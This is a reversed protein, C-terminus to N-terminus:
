VKCHMLIVPCHRKVHAECGTGSIELPTLSESDTEASKKRGPAQKWKHTHTQKNKM